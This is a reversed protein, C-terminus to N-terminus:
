QCSILIIRLICLSFDSGGEAATAVEGLSIEDTVNRECNDAEKM